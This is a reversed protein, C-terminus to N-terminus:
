SAAIAAAARDVAEPVPFVIEFRTGSECTVRIEGGVQRVLEEVVRLGSRRGGGAPLGHGFDSITLRARDAEPEHRLTVEVRGGEAGYAYKAANTVLEVVCLALPTALGVNLDLPDARVEVSVGGEPPAIADSRAIRELLAAFDVDLASGTQYLLDHIAAIALVRAGIAELDPGAPRGRQLRILSQIMQLSNKVRHNMERLMTEKISATKEAEELLRRDFALAAQAAEARLTRSAYRAMLFSAGGITGFVATAAAMVALWSNVVTGQAVGATAFIPLNGVRRTFYYRYIGDTQARAAYAGGGNEAVTRMLPQDPSLMLAEEMPLNRILLRGDERLVSAADGSEGSIQQLFDRIVAIEIAAVWVGDPANADRPRRAIVFSDIGSPQVVLRDVHLGAEPTERLYTRDGVSGTAPYHQSSIVFSGDAAIFAMGVSGVVENSVRRLFLHAEYAGTTEGALHSLAEDAAALAVEQTQVLRLIYAEVLAANKEAQAEARDVLLNWAVLGTLAIVVATVALAATGFVKLRRLARIDGAKNDL